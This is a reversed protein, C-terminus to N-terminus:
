MQSRSYKRSGVMAGADNIHQLLDLIDIAGLKRPRERAIGRRLNQSFIRSAFELTKQLGTSCKKSEITLDISRELSPILKGVEPYLWRPSCHAEKSSFCLGM